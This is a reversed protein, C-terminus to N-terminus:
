LLQELVIGVLVLEIDGLFRFVQFERFLWALGVAFGLRALFNKAFDQIFGVLL